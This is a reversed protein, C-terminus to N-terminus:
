RPDQSPIYWHKGKGQIRYNEGIPDGSETDIRINSANLMEVGRAFAYRTSFAGTVTQSPVSIVCKIPM